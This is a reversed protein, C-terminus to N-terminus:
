YRKRNIINFDDPPSDPTWVTAGEAPTSAAAPGESAEEAEDTDPDFGEGRMIERAEKLLRDRDEETMDVYTMDGAHGKGYSYLVSGLFHQFAKDRKSTSNLAILAGAMENPASARDQAVRRKAFRNALLRMEISHPVAAYKGVLAVKIVRDPFAHPVVFAFRADEQVYIDVDRNSVHYLDPYSNLKASTYLGDGHRVVLPSLEHGNRLNGLKPPRTGPNKPLFRYLAPAQFQGFGSHYVRGKRWLDEAAQLPTVGGLSLMPTVNWNRSLVDIIEEALWWTIRHRVAADSGNPNRAPDDPSNGTASPMLKMATSWLHFLKEAFAHKEPVGLPGQVYLCRLVDRILERTEESDHTGDSDSCLHKCSSGRFTELEMAFAAGDRYRFEPHELALTRRPPPFLARYILRKVDETRYRPFRSACSALRLPVACDVIGLGWLRTTHVEQFQGNLMPLLMTWQADFKHEDFEWREFLNFNRPRIANREDLKKHDRKFLAAKDPALVRFAAESPRMFCKKKWWRRIAESGVTTSEVLKAEQTDKDISTRVYPWARPTAEHLGKKRLLRLFEKHVVRPTLHHVPAEPKKDASAPFCFVCLEAEVDPHQAFFKVLEKGYPSDAPDDPPVKPSWGEICVWYGNIAGTHPNRAIARKFLRYLQGQKLQALPRALIIDFERKGDIYDDLAAQTALYRHEAARGEADKAFQKSCEPAPWNARAPLGEVLQERTLRLHVPDVSDM